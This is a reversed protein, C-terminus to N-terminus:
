YRLSSIKLSYAGKGNDSKRICMMVGELQLRFIRM